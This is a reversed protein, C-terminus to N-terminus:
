ACPSCAAKHAKWDKKQCEKSCYRVAKCRSCAQTGSGWTRCSQCNELSKERKEAWWAPFRGELFHGGCARGVDVVRLCQPGGFWALRPFSPDFVPMGPFSMCFLPRPEKEADQVDFVLVQGGGQQLWLTTENFVAGRFTRGSVPPIHWLPKGSELSWAQVLSSRQAPDRLDHRVDISVFLSDSIAGVWIQSDHAYQPVPSVLPTWKSDSRSGGKGEQACQWIVVGYRECSVFRDTREPPFFIMKVPYLHTSPLVTEKGITVNASQAESYIVVHQNGPLIGAWARRKGERDVGFRSTGGILLNKRDADKSARTGNDPRFGFLKEYQSTKGKPLSLLDNARLVTGGQLDGAERADYLDLRGTQPCFTTQWLARKDEQDGLLVRHLLCDNLCDWMLLENRVFVLVVAKEPITRTCHIDEDEGMGVFKFILCDMEARLKRSEENEVPVRSVRKGLGELVLGRSLGVRARSNDVEAAATFGMETLLDARKAYREYSRGLRGAAEESVIAKTIERIAPLTAGRARLEEAFSTAVRNLIEKQEDAEHKKLRAPASCCGCRSIGKMSRAAADKFLKTPSGELKVAKSFDLLWHDFPGEWEVDTQGREFVTRATEVIETLLSVPTRSGFTEMLKGISSLGFSNVTPPTKPNRLVPFLVNRIVSHFREPSSSDRQLIKEINDWLSSRECANEDLLRQSLLGVVEDGGRCLVRSWADRVELADMPDESCSELAGLLSCFMLAERSEELSLPPLRSDQLVSALEDGLRLRREPSMSSARLAKLAQLVTGEEQVTKFLAFTLGGDRGFDGYGIGDGDGESYDTKEKPEEGGGEGDRDGGGGNSASDMGEGEQMSDGDGESEESDSGESDSSEGEGDGDGDVEDSETEDWESDPAALELLGELVRPFSPADPLFLSALEAESAEDERWTKRRSTEAAEGEKEHARERAFQRLVKRSGKM